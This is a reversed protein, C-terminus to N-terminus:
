HHDAGPQEPRTDAPIRRSRRRGDLPDPQRRTGLYRKRGDDRTLLHRLSCGYDVHQRQQVDRRERLGRCSAVSFPNAPSKVEDVTFQIYANTITAGAPIGLDAFRIGVYQPTGDGSGPKELGIELDSSNFDLQGADDGTVWEEMDDSAEKVPAIVTHIGDGSFVPVTVTTAPSANYGTKEAYRVDYDGPALGTVSAGTCATWGSGSSPKYEMAATTGTIQGDDNATTTPAVGKIGVPADQDKLVSEIIVTVSAGPVGSVDAYRVEYKPCL